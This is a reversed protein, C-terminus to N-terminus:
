PSQFRHYCFYRAGVQYGLAESNSGGFGTPAVTEPSPLTTKGSASGYCVPRTYTIGSVTFNEDHLNTFDGYHLSQLGTKNSLFATCYYGPDLTLPSSWNLAYATNIAIAQSISGLQTTPKSTTRDWVYIAHFVTTAAVITGGISFNIGIFKTRWPLFFPTYWIIQGATGTNNVLQTTNQTWPIGMAPDAGATFYPLNADSLRDFSITVTDGNAFSGIMAIPTITFTDYAGNDTLAGTIYFTCFNGSGKIITVQAKRITSGDDMTALITALANSNADTESINMATASAFTANNFLLSGSGPDGSTTTNFTYKFSNGAIANAALAEAITTWESTPGTPNEIEIKSAGGPATNHTPIDSIKATM